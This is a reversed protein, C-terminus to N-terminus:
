KKTTSLTLRESSVDVETVKCDEFTKAVGLVDRLIVKNGDVKVYVADKFVIKKDLFVKFECM